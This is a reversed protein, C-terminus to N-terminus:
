SLECTKHLCAVRFAAQQLCSSDVMVWRRTDPDEALIPQKLDRSTIEDVRERWGALADREFIMMTGALAM